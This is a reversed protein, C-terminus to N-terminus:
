RRRADAPLHGAAGEWLARLASDLDDSYREASTLDDAADFGSACSGRAFAGSMHWLGLILAYSHRLLGVGGGTALQPFHRELAAGARQLRQAMRDKFGMVVEASAGEGMTGFCRAALPLFLPPDVMHLRTFALIDDIAVAREGELRATLERFFGDISREHVALLLEEKSRFYLYVTGKALGAEDAVDAVNAHFDPSRALIRETADLIAHRRQQKADAEM